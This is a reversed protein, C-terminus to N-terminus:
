SQLAVLAARVAKLDDFAKRKDGPHRLLYAPHFSPMVRAEGGPFQISRWRGRLRAVQARDDLVARCAVGGLVLVLRPQVVGMKELLAARCHTLDEGYGDPNTPPKGTLVRAFGIQDRRLKLVNVLMKDLM